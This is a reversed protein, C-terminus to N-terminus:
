RRLRALLMQWVQEAERVRLTWLLAIYAAGAAATPVIVRWLLSLNATTIFLTYAIAGMAVSAAGVKITLAIVGQNEFGGLRTRM